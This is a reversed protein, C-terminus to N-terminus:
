KTKVIAPPLGLRNNYSSIQSLGLIYVGFVQQNKQSHTGPRDGRMPAEEERRTRGERRGRYGGVLYSL